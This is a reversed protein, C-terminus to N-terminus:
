ANRSKFFCISYASKGGRVYLLDTFIGLDYPMLLIFPIATRHRHVPQWCPIGLHLCNAQLPSPDVNQRPPQAPEGMRPPTSSTILQPFSLWPCFSTRGSPGPLPLPCDGCCARTVFFYAGEDSSYIRAISSSCIVNPAMVAIRRARVTSGKKM